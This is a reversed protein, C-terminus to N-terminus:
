ASRAFLSAAIVFSHHKLAKEIGTLEKKKAWDVARGLWSLATKATTPFQVAEYSLSQARAEIFYAVENM